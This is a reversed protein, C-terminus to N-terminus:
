VPVGWFPREDRVSWWTSILVVVAGGLGIWLGFCREVAGAPPSAAAVAILVVALLAVISTLVAAALPASPSRQTVTLWGLALAGAAALAAVVAAATVANFADQQGAAFEFWPEFLAVALLLGGVLASVEAPRM